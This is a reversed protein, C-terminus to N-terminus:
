PSLLVMGIHGRAGGRCCSSCGQSHVEIRPIARYAEETYVRLPAPPPLGPRPPSWAAPGPPRACGDCKEMKGERNFSPRWPCAMACSHCGHLEPQRLPHAPRRTRALCASPCRCVPPAPATCVPSPRASTEVGASDRRDVCFVNRFPLESDPTSTTRTWAPWRSPRLRLM